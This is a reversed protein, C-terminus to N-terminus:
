AVNRIPANWVQNIANVEASTANPISAGYANIVTLRDNRGMARWVIASAQEQTYGFHVYFLSFQLQQWTGISKIAAHVAAYNKGPTMLDYAIFLNTM